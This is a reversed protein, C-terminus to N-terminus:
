LFLFITLYLCHYALPHQKQRVRYLYDYGINTVFKLIRPTTTGSFGKVCIERHMENSLSISFLFFLYFSPLIYKM